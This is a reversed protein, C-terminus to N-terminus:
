GEKLIGMFEDHDGVYTVKKVRGIEELRRVLGGHTYDNSLANRHFYIKGPVSELGHLNMLNGEGFPVDTVLVVDAERMLELNEEQKELTVSTFPEIDVCQINLHQCVEWDGSGVNLVGATIVYGRADMEEIVKVAKNAGCIVHIHLPSEVKEEEMVRIPVIEPKQFLPSEQIVLKMNYLGEMNEQNVIEHPTGEESVVGDQLMIMRKCFRSAMNIDHLVALVTMNEDRNLKSILEMVEIQHHVDLASTPEDLLIIRPKQAIARALIVRQREGGSLENYFRGRFMETNTVKMAEEVIEFDERSEKRWLDMYPNRGMMVIDEVLFNYEVHFSQPVVAVMQAREKNKLRSNDKGCITISGRKLPLLGSICKILTSKGTGNSGILSGFEGEEITMTVDKLIEQSGYGAAVHSFELIEKSM